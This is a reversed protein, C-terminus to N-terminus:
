TVPKLKEKGETENNPIESLNTLRRNFSFCIINILLM